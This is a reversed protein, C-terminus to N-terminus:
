LPSEINIQGNYPIQSSKWLPLVQSSRRHRLNHLGYQLLYLRFCKNRTWASIGSSEIASRLQSQLDGCFVSIFRSKLKFAQRLELGLDSLAKLHM